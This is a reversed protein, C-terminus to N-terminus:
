VFISFSKVYISFIKVGHRCLSLNHLPGPLAWVSLTGIFVPLQLFRSKKEIKSIKPIIKAINKYIIM